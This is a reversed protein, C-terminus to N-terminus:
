PQPTFEPITAQLIEITARRDPAPSASLSDFLRKYVAQRVPPALAKFAESYVMYSCAYRMLRNVADFQALSRGKADHPLRKEMALAFGTRPTLPVPLTAEHGFLLYDALEDVLRRIDPRDDVSAREVSTARRWAFNLRTMLNIAPM